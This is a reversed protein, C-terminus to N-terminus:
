CPAMHAFKTNLLSVMGWLQLYLITTSCCWMLRCSWCVCTCLCVCMCTHMYGHMRVVSMCVCAFTCVYKYAYWVCMYMSIHMCDHMYVICVCWVCVHLHVCLWAHMSYVCACMYVYLHAYVWAHVCVCVCLILLQSHELIWDIVKEWQFDFALARHLRIFIVSQLATKVQKLSQVSGEAWGSCSLTRLSSNKIVNWFLFACIAMIQTRPHAKLSRYWFVEGHRQVLISQAGSILDRAIGVNFPGNNVTSRKTPLFDPWSNLAWAAREFPGTDSEWWGCGTVWLEQSELELSEPVM